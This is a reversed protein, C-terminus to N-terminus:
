HAYDILTQTYEVGNLIVPPISGHYVYVSDIKKYLLGAHNGYVESKYIHNINSTFDNQTVTVTSDFNFGGYSDPEFLNDYSYSEEDLDNYANGNWHIRSNMPFALRVYRRHDEEKELGAATIKASWVASLEWPLTDNDRRYRLIVRATDGEGDVFETDVQEHIYFHYTLISTDVLNVDDNDLHVISDVAYEVWYGEEMPYYTSYDPLTSPAVVTEDKCSNLFLILVCFGAIFPSFLRNLFYTNMM